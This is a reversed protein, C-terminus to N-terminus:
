TYQKIERYYVCDDAFLRIQSDIGVSIDNTYLFFLLPGVITGQLVGSVVPAWDSKIANVVVRQQRFCVCFFFVVVFFM